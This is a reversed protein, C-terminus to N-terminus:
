ATAEHHDPHQFGDQPEAVTGPPLAHRSANRRRELERATDAPDAPPLGAAARRADELRAPHVDARHRGRTTCVRRPAAHCRPCPVGLVNVVGPAPTRTSDSVAALAARARGTPQNTTGPPLAPIPTPELRGSAIARREALLATRYTTDDTDGAPPHAETHRELRDRHATRVTTRIDAPMIWRTQTRYHQTVAARAETFDIDELVTHWALVDAKGLTRRDFAACFALLEATQSPTM